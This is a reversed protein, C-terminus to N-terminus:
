LGEPWSKPLVLSTRSAASPWRGQSMKAPEGFALPSGEWAMGQQSKTWVGKPNAAGESFNSRMLSRCCSLLQHLPPFSDQHEHSACSPLTPHSPPFSSFAHPLPSVSSHSPQSSPSTYAPLAALLLCLMVCEQDWSSWWWWWWEDGVAQMFGSPPHRQTVRADEPSSTSPSGLQWTVAHPASAPPRNKVHFSNLPMPRVPHGLM